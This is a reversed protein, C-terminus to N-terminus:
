GSNLCNMATTTTDPKTYCRKTVRSAKDYENIINVGDADTARIVNGLVDYAFGATWYGTSNFSDSLDLNPNREQEPQNVRLLRGLSDYKFYRKQVGQTVEVMKGYADYKYRTPQIPSDIDGLDTNANTSIGTPEDVRILQGLANTISRGKRLSADTTTVVTGIDGTPSISYSTIGLSVLNTNAEIDALTAPAYTEVARGLEDFRTKNWLVPNQETIESARYPNTVRDVRGM